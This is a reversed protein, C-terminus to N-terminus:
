GLADILEAHKKASRPTATPSYESWKIETLQPCIRSIVADVEDRSVAEASRAIVRTKQGYANQTVDIYVQSQNGDKAHLSISVALPRQGPGQTILARASNEMRPDAKPKPEPSPKSDAKPPVPKKEAAAKEAASKEKAARMAASAALEKEFAWDPTGHSVPREVPKVAPAPAPKVATATNGGLGIMARHFSDFNPYRQRCSNVNNAWQDQFTNAM